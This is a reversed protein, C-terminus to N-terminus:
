KLDLAAALTTLEPAGRPGLVLVSRRPALLVLAEEGPRGPYRQWARGSVQVTGASRTPGLEAALLADAPRDSQVVQLGVGGPTAYGIRLVAGGDGARYVASAPRWDAPVGVPAAVPFDGARRASDLAAAVDARRPEDSRQVFTYIGGLILLPVALVLLSLLMDRPRRGAAPATESM